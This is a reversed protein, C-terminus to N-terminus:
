HLARSPPPISQAARDEEAWVRMEAAKADMEALMAEPDIGYEAMAERFEKDHDIPTEAFGGRFCVRLYLFALWGFLAGGLMMQVFQMM